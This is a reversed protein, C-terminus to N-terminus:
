RIFAVTCEGSAALSDFEHHDASLLTGSVTKALTVGFCDALSIRRRTARLAGAAQCFSPSIDERRGSFITTCRVSISRTLSASTLLIECFM